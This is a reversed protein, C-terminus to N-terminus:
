FSFGLRGGHTHKRFNRMLKGGTAAVCSRISIHGSGLVNWIEINNMEWYWLLTIQYFWRKNMWYYIIPNVCSNAMALWYFALYMNPTYRSWIWPYWTFMVQVFKWHNWKFWWPIHVFVNWPFSVNEPIYSTFFLTGNPWSLRTMTPTSSIHMTPFGACAFSPSWAVLCRSLRFVLQALDKIFVTTKVILNVTLTSGWEWGM